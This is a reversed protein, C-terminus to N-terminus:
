GDRSAGNRATAFRRLTTRSIYRCWWRRGIVTCIPSAYRPTTDGNSHSSSPREAPTAGPPSTYGSATCHHGPTGRGAGGTCPLQGLLLHHVHSAAPRGTTDLLLFEGGLVPHAGVRHAHDHASADPPLRRARDRRGPM